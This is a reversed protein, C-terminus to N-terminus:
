VKMVMDVEQKGARELPGVGCEVFGYHTFKLHRPEEGEFVYRMFNM